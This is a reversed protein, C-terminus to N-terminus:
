DAALQVDESFGNLREVVSEACCIRHKVAETTSGDDALRSGLYVVARKRKMLETSVQIQPLAAKDISGFLKCKKPSLIQGFPEATTM